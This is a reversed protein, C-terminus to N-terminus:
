DRSKEVRFWDCDLHGGAAGNGGGAGAAGAAMCCLGAKAGIWRGPEAAFPEGLPRFGVGDISYSFVCIASATKNADEAVTVRLWLPGNPLGQATAEVREPKGKDAANCTVRRLELGKAGQALMLAAYSKGMVVLGAREGPAQPRYELKATATFAPGPFKQMLLNGATWLNAGGRRCRPAALGAKSGAVGLEAGPQGDM